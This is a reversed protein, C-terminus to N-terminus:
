VHQHFRRNLLHGPIIFGSMVAAALCLLQFDYTVFFSIIAFLWVMLAGYQLPKFKLIGGGAYLSFAYLVMITPYFSRWHNGNMPMIFCVVFLSIAYAIIVHKFVEDVYTVVRQKKADMKSKIITVLGGLPMLIAWVLAHSEHQQFMLYYDILASVFVLYGWFMYYFGNDHIERKAEQIMKEILELANEEKLEM